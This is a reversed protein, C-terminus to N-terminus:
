GALLKKIFLIIFGILGYRNIARAVLPRMALLVDAWYLYVARHRGYRSYNEKFDQDFDGVIGDGHSAKCVAALLFEATKPPVKLRDIATIARKLGDVDPTVETEDPTAAYLSNSLNVIERLTTILRKRKANVADNRRVWEEPDSVFFRDFSATSLQNLSNMKKMVAYCKREYRRQLEYIERTVSAYRSYLTDIEAGLHAVDHDLQLTPGGNSAAMTAHIKLRLIEHCLRLWDKQVAALEGCLKHTDELLRSGSM